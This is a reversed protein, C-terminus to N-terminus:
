GGEEDSVTNKEKRLHFVGTQIALLILAAIGYNIAATLFQPNQDQTASGYGALITALVWAIPVSIVYKKPKVVKRLAIFSVLSSLIFIGVVGGAIFAVDAV